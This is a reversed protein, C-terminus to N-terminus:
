RSKRLHHNIKRLITIELDSKVKALYSIILGRIYVKFADWIINPTPKEKDEIELNTITKIRKNVYKIFKPDLLHARNMRCIRDSLTNETSTILCSVPCCDLRVIDHM